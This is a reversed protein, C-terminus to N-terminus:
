CLVDSHTVADFSAERFPLDAGSAAVADALIDEEAARVRAARLGETPIDTVVVRCGSAKALYLGPWGAGTGIDLLTSAPDLDLFDLVVRAGEVDTYSNGGYDCGLTRRELERLPSSGAGEYYAGFHSVLEEHASAGVMVAGMQQRNDEPTDDTM